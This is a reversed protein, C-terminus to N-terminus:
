KRAGSSGSDPVNARKTQEPTDGVPSRGGRRQADSESQARLARESDSGAHVPDDVGSTRKAGENTARDSEGTKNAAARDVWDSQKAKKGAM